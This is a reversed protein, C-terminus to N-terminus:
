IILEIVYYIYFKIYSNSHKYKEENAELNIQLTSCDITKICISHQNILLALANINVTKTNNRELSLGIEKLQTYNTASEAIYYLAEAFQIMTQETNVSNNM